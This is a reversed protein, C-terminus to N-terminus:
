TQFIIQFPNDRHITIKGDKRKLDLETPDENVNDPGCLRISNISISVIMLQNLGTKPSKRKPVRSRRASGIGNSKSSRLADNEGRLRTEWDRDM